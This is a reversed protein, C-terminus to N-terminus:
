LWVAEERLVRGFRTDAPIAEFETRTYVLLDVPVPLDTTDWGVGRKEFPEASQELVLVVDLDSGVGADGRAYSGIYGIRLLDPRRSRAKEAWARLSADVAAADPWKLVSSSLSRVPM